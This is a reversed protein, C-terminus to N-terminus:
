HHQKQYHGMAVIVYYYKKYVNGTTRYNIMNRM